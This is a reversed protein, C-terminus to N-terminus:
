FCMYFYLRGHVSRNCSSFGFFLYFIYIAYPDLMCGLIVQGTLKKRLKTRVSAIQLRSSLM